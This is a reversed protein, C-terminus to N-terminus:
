KASLSLSFCWYNEPTCDELRGKRLYGTKTACQEGLVTTKTHFGVKLLPQTVHHLHAAKRCEWPRERHVDHM